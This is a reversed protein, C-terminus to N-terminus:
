SSVVKHTASPNSKRLAVSDGGVTKTALGVTRSPQVSQLTPRAPDSAEIDARATVVWGLLPLLYRATPWTSPLVLTQDYSKAAVVFLIAAEDVVAEPGRSRM